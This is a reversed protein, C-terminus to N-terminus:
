PQAEQRDPARTESGAADPDYGCHPCKLPAVSETPGALFYKGCKSCPVMEEASEKGCKPCAMKRFPDGAKGRIEAVAATGMQFEHGCGRCKLHMQGYHRATGGTGTSVYIVAGVACALGLGALIQLPRGAAQGLQWHRSDQRNGRGGSVTIRV